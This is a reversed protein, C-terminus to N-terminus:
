RGETVNNPNKSTSWLESPKGVTVGGSSNIVASSFMEDLETPNLKTFDKTYRFAEGDENDAVTYFSWNLALASAIVSIIVFIAIMRKLITKM